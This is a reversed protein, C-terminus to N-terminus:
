YHKPEALILHARLELIVKCLQWRVPLFHFPIHGFLVDMDVQFIKVTIIFSVTPAFSTTLFQVAPVKGQAVGVFGAFIQLPPSLCIEGIGFVLNSTTELILSLMISVLYYRQNKVLNGSVIM